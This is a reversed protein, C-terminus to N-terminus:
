TVYMSFLQQKTNMVQGVNGLRLHLRGSVSVKVEVSQVVGDRTPDGVALSNSDSREFYDNSFIDLEHTVQVADLGQRCLHQSIFLFM